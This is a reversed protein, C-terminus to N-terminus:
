ELANVYQYALEYLESNDNKKTAQEQAARSIKYQTIGTTKLVDVISDVCVDFEDDHPKKGDPQEQQKLEIILGKFGFSSFLNCCKIILGDRTTFSEGADGTILQRQVWMNSLKNGIINDMSEPYWVSSGSDILNKIEQKEGAQTSMTTVIGIGNKLLISRQQQPFSISYLVRRKDEEGSEKEASM